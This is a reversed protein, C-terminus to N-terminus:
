KKEIQEIRKQIRGLEEALSKAQNKLSVLDEQKDTEALQKSWPEAEWDRLARGGAARNRGAGMGMGKGGGCGMGRGMGRGMGMGRGGGMGSGMGYGSSMAPASGPDTGSLLKGAKYREIADDIRGSVGTMMQVGVAAFVHHAKPGINGTIVTRVEQNCLLQAASIGAGSSANLNPNQLIESQMTETDVVVYYASRGFRPDIESDLSPGTASFAIKM